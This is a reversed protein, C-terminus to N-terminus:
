NTSRTAVGTPFTSGAQNTMDYPQGITTGTAPSSGVLPKLAFPATSNDPQPEISIVITQGSLDTPFTLGSPANNIFDEGPFPPSAADTGSFPADWDAAAPDTFQGTSVPSGNLVAWGEYAWGDGLTPLDLGAMGSGSSNDIFWVGSFEDNMDSTTPTAILFKGTSSSFDGVIGTNITAADGSFGGSLVKVDSPAPDSDPSPEISLIFDTASELTENSVEFSTKSLAGNADITFTGTSVPSGDVLLWGEYAYGSGLDELGSLALTLNGNETEPDDKKCSTFFLGLALFPIIISKM